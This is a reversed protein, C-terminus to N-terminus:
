GEGHEKIWEWIDNSARGWYASFNLVLASANKNESIGLEDSLQKSTGDYSVLWEGNPLRLCKNGFFEPFEDDFNSNGVTPIVVFTAM